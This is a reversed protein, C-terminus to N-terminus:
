SGSTCIETIIIFVAMILVFYGFSPKLKENSIAKSYYNGIFIGLIAIATFGLLFGWDPAFEKGGLAWDGLFIFWSNASIIWLSIGVATRMEIKLGKVLVPTILFGGGAGAIGAVIGVKIGQLIIKLTSYVPVECATTAQKKPAIMSKAVILMILAFLTMILFDKTIEIGNIEFLIAPLYSKIAKRVLIGIIITPPAFSLVTKQILKSQEPHQRFYTFAGVFSTAGVVFLSYSTASTADLGILFVMIPVALIAGGGGLMGLAIGILLSFFYGLIYM